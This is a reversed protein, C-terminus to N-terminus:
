RGQNFFQLWLPYSAVIGDALMPVRRAVLEKAARRISNELTELPGFSEFGFTWWTENAISVCTLEVNCGIAPLPPRRGTEDPKPHPPEDTDLEIESLNPGTTDFKRLWRQKETAVSTEETFEIHLLAKSTWKAWLEVPGAFPPVNLTIFTSAVLGKVEVGHRAVGSEEDRIKIGIEHQDSEKLYRDTRSKGSGASFGHANSECFWQLLDDPASNRWFWRLEASVQM